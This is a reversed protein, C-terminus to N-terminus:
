SCMGGKKCMERGGFASVALAYRATADSIGLATLKSVLEDPVSAGSPSHNNGGLAPPPTSVISSRQSMRRLPPRIVDSEGRQRERHHSPKQIRIISDVQWELHGVFSKNEAKSVTKQTPQYSMYRGPVVVCSEPVACGSPLLPAPRMKIDIGPGFGAPRCFTTMRL